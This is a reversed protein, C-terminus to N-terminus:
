REYEKEIFKQWQEDTKYKQWVAWQDAYTQKIRRIHWQRLGADFLIGAVFGLLSIMGIGLLPVTWEELSTSETFWMGLFVAVAIVLPFFAVLPLLDAGSPDYVVYKPPLKRKDM